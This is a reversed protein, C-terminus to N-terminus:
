SRRSNNAARSKWTFEIPVVALARRPVGNELYPRFQAQSVAKRAADDLRAFGSSHQVEIKAAHGAEDILVRLVVLGEEGSRRSEAPYHPRPPELYAVDSIVRPGSDEKPPPPNETVVVTIATPAPAEEALTIEPPEITPPDPFELKPPAPPPLETQPLQEIISAEIVPPDLMQRVASNTAVVYILAAHAAAIVFWASARRTYRPPAAAATLTTV